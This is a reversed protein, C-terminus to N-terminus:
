PSLLSHGLLSDLASLHSPSALPLTRPAMPRYVQRCSPLSHTSARSPCNLPLVLTRPPPPPGTSAVLRRWPRGPSRRAAQHCRANLVAPASGTTSTITRLLSPSLATVELSRPAIAMAWQGRAIPSPRHAVPSPAPDRLDAACVWCRRPSAGAPIVGQLARTPCRWFTFHLCQM